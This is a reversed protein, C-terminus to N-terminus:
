ESPGRARYQRILKLCGSMETTKLPRGKRPYIKMYLRAANIKSLSLKVHPHDSQLESLEVGQDLSALVSEIPLRSGSFVPIGGMISADSCILAHAQNIEKVRAFAHHVFKHVDCSTIDPIEIHLDSKSPTKILDFLQARNDRNEIRATLNRLVERRFQAVFITDTKFYFSAFAAGLRAFKRGHTTDFLSSPLIQEDAVRNMDRDSLDAIFAAETTPVFGPAITM